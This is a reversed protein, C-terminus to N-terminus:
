NNRSKYKKKSKFSESINFLKYSVGFEFALHPLAYHNFPTQFFLCPKFVISLPLDSYKNEFNYGVGYSLMPMFYYSGANKDINVSGKENVQYTTGDLLTRM